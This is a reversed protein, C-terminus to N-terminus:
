SHVGVDVADIYAVLDHTRGSRVLQSATQGSFGPLPQSRYWVYAAPASGFRAELKGVIKVLENLRQQVGDSRVLDELRASHDELGAARAIEESTTRLAVAIRTPALFGNESYDALDM